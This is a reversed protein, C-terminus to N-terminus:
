GHFEPLCFLAGVAITGCRPGENFGFSGSNEGSDWLFLQM